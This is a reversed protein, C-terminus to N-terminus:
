AIQHTGILFGEIGQEKLSRCFGCLFKRMIRAVETSLDTQHADQVGPRAIQDKMRMYVVESWSSAQVKISLGPPRRALTEEQGHVRKGFQKSSTESATQLFHFEKLLDRGLDPSLLPDHMALRNCITLGGELIESRIDMPNGDAITAQKGKVVAASHLSGLNGKLVACGIGRLEFSAGKRDLLEKLTEELMNERKGKDLHTIETEKASSDTALENNQLDAKALGPKIRNFLM